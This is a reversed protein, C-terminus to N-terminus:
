SQLCLIKLNKISDRSSDTSRCRTIIRIMNRQIRLIKASHLTNKLYILGFNIVSYLYGYFVMELTEESIFRKVSGMAYGAASLKDTIQESHIKLSLM